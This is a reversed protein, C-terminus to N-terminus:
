WDCLEEIRRWVKKVFKKPGYIGFDDLTFSIFAIGWVCYFGFSSNVFDMVVKEVAELMDGFFIEFVFSGLEFFVFQLIFPFFFATVLSSFLNSSISRFSIPYEREVLEETDSASTDPVQQSVKKQELKSSEASM